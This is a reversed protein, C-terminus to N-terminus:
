ARSITTTTCPTTSCCRNDWMVLDGVHWVHRAQFEPASAHRYLFELLPASEERPGVSSGSRSRAACYLSRQRNRRARAGGSTRGAAGRETEGYLARLGEASHLLAGATRRHRRAAGSLTDYALEQNAFATDGASRRRKSRTFM